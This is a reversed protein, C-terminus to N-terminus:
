SMQMPVFSRAAVASERQQWDAVTDIDFLVGADEVTVTVLQDQHAQLIERAGQDGKCAMLSQRFRAAFGVPHGRKGAHVPAILADGDSLRAALNQLTRAQIDPMDGLGILWVSAQSTQAVGFALSHGMGSAADPCPLWDIRNADMLEREVQNRLASYEAPVVVQVRPFSALWPQLAHSLVSMTGAEGSLTQMLKPGGFRSSMGAALVIASIAELGIDPM